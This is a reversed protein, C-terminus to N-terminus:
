QHNQKNFIEVKKILSHYKKDIDFVNSKDHRKRKLLGDKSDKLWYHSHSSKSSKDYPKVNGKDDFELDIECKLLHGEFINISHIKIYGNKDKNAILYIANSSNSNLINKKQAANKSLFVVKHNELRYHSDTHTRIAKPVIGWGSNYSSNGGM